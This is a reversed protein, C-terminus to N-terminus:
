LIDWHSLWSIAFREAEEISGSALLSKSVEDASATEAIGIYREGSKWLLAQIDKGSVIKLGFSGSRLADMFFSLNKKVFGIRSELRRIGGEIKQRKQGEGEEKLLNRLGEVAEKISFDSEMKIFVLPAPFDRGLIKPTDRVVTFNLCNSHESTWSDKGKEYLVEVEKHCFPCLFAIKPEFGIGVLLDVRM